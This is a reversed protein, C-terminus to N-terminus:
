RTEVETSRVNAPVAPHASAVANFIGHWSDTVYCGEGLRNRIHSDTSTAVPLATLLIFIILKVM